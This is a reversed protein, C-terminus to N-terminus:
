QSGCARCGMACGSFDVGSGLLVNMSDWMYGGVFHMQNCLPWLLTLNELLSLMAMKVLLCALATGRSGIIIKM